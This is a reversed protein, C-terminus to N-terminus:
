GGSKTIKSLEDIKKRLKSLDGEIERLPTLEYRALVDRAAKEIDALARIDEGPRQSKKNRIGEQIRKSNEINTIASQIERRATRADVEMQRLKGLGPIRSVWGGAGGGSIGPMGGGGGGGGTFHRFIFYLLGLAPLLLFWLEALPLMISYWGNIIIFIYVGLAILIRIGMVRGTPGRLVSTSLIYIFIILFITPFFFFYLFPGMPALVQHHPTSIFQNCAMASQSTPCLFNVLADMIDLAM